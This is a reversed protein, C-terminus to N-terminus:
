AQITFEEADRLARQTRRLTRFALPHSLSNFSLNCLERLAGAPSGLTLWKESAKVRLAHRRPLQDLSPATEQFKWERPREPPLRIICNTPDQLVPVPVLATQFSTTIMMSGIRARHIPCRGDMPCYFSRPSLNPLGARSPSFGTLRKLASPAVIDLWKM